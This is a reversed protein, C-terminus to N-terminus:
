RSSRIPTRRIMDDGIIALTVQPLERHDRLAQETRRRRSLDRGTVSYAVLLLTDNDILVQTARYSRVANVILVALVLGAVVALRKVM